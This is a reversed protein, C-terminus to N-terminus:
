NHNYISKIRNNSYDKQAYKDEIINDKFMVDLYDMDSLENLLKQKNMRKINVIYNNSCSYFNNKTRNIKFKANRKSCSKENERNKTVSNLIDSDTTKTLSTRLNESLFTQVLKNNKAEEKQKKYNQNITNSILNKYYKKSNLKFKKLFRYKLMTNIKDYISNGVKSTKKRRFGNMFGIEEYDQFSFIRKNSKNNLFYLKNNKLHSLNSSSMPRFINSKPSYLRESFNKSMKNNKFLKIKMTRRKINKESTNMTELTASTIGSFNKSIEKKSNINKFLNNRRESNNASFINRHNKLNTYKEEIIDFINKKNKNRNRESLCQIQEDFKIIDPSNEDYTSLILGPKKTEEKNEKVNDNYKSENKSEEIIKRNSLISKILVDATKRKYAIKLDIDRFYSNEKENLILLNLLKEKNSYSMRQSALINYISNKIKKLKLRPSLEESSIRMKDINNYFNLLAENSVKSIVNKGKSYDISNYDIKNFSNHKKKKNTMSFENRKEFPINRNLLTSWNYLAEANEEKLYLEKLKDKQIEISRFKNVDDKYITELLEISKEEDDSNINNMLDMKYVLKGSNARLKENLDKNTFINKTISKTNLLNKNLSTLAKTMNIKKKKKNKMM